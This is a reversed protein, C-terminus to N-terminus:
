EPAQSKRNVTDTVHQLLLNVSLLASSRHVADKNQGFTATTPAALEATSTANSVQRLPASTVMIIRSLSIRSLTFYQTLGSISFLILSPDILAYKLEVM